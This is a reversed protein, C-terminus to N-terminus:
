PSGGSREAYLQQTRRASDARRRTNQEGTSARWWQSMPASRLLEDGTIRRRRLARQPRPVRQRPLHCRRLSRPRDDHPLSALPSITTGPVWRNKHRPLPHARRARRRREARRAPRTSGGRAEPVRPPASGRSARPGRHRHRARPLSTTQQCPRCRPARRNCGRPGSPSRTRPSVATNTSKVPAAIARSTAARADQLHRLCREGREIEVKDRHGRAVSRTFSGGSTFGRQTRTTHSSTRSVVYRAGIRSSRTTPSQSRGTGIM